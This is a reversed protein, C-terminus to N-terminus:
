GESGLYLKMGVHSAVFGLREYFRHADVRARNSTLQVRVAGRRRAEEVVWDMLATGIGQGRLEPVTRVSEVEAILGGHYTLHRAFTLQCTAVIAGDLEGVLLLVNPNAAIEEFAAVYPGAVEGDQGVDEAVERIADAAIMAVVAALDARSAERIVMRSAASPAASGTSGLPNTSVSSM